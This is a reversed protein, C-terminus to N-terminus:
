RGTTVEDGATFSGRAAGKELWALCLGLRDGQGWAAESPTWVVPVFGAAAQTTDMECAATAEDVVAQDGPWEDARFTHVGVVEAEHPEACPVLTVRNVEGDGPMTALCHGVDLRGAAVETREEVEDLPSTDTALRMALYGGTGLALVLVIGIALLVPWLRRQRRTPPPSAPASWGPAYFAEQPYYGRADPPRAAPGPPPAGTGPPGAGWPGPAGPPVPPQSM